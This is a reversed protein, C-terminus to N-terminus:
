SRGFRRRRARVAAGPLGSAEGRHEIMDRVLSDVADTTARSLTVAAHVRSALKFLAPSVTRGVRERTWGSLTSDMLAEFFQASNAYRIASDAVDRAFVVDGRLASQRAVGAEWEARDAVELARRAYSRAAKVPPLDRFRALDDYGAAEQDPVASDFSEGPQGEDRAVGANAAGTSSSAFPSQEPSVLDGAPSEHPGSIDNGMHVSARPRRGGGSIETM